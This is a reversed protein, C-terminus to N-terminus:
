FKSFRIKQQLSTVVFQLAKFKEASRAAVKMLLLYLIAILVYAVLDLFTEASRAAMNILFVIFVFSFSQFLLIYFMEASRAAPRDILSCLSCFVSNRFRNQFKYVVSLKDRLRTGALRTTNIQFNSRLM